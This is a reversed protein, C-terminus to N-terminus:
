TLNTVFIAEILQTNFVKISNQRYVDVFADEEINGLLNVVADNPACVIHDLTAEPGYLDRVHKDLRISVIDRVM